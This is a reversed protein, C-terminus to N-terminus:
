IASPFLYKKERPFSYTGNIRREFRMDVMDNQRRIGFVRTTYYVSRGAVGTCEGTSAYLKVVNYTIVWICRRVEEVTTHV